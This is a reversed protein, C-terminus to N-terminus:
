AFPKYCGVWLWAHFPGNQMGLSCGPETSRTQRGSIIKVPM